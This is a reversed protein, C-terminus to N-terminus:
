SMSTKILLFRNEMTPPSKFAAPFSPLTGREAKIIANAPSEWRGAVRLEKVNEATIQDLPAYKTSGSDGGYAPWQGNAAGRQAVVANSSQLAVVCALLALYRRM